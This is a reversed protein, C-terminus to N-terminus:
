TNCVLKSKNEEISLMEEVTQLASINKMPSSIIFDLKKDIQHLYM